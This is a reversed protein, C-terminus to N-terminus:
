TPAPGEPEPESGRFFRRIGAAIALAIRDAPDADGERGTDGEPTPLSPEVQVAPMRTERLLAGTLRRLRGKHHFESELEDLILRALLMGAPSHSTAAGFFACSPGAADPDSPPVVSVCVAAGLDNATRARDSPTPDENEIRLLAPKAGAAALMRGLASAIAYTEVDSAIERTGVDPAVAGPAVGPASTPSGPDIAIVQGELSGHM